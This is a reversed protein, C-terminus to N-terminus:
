RASRQVTLEIREIHAQNVTIPVRTGADDRYETTVGDRTETTVGGGIRGGTIGGGWTFSGGNSGGQAGRIASRSTVVPAIAVLTYAGDTVSNIVFRGSADTRSPMQGRMFPSGTSDDRMLRILANAVPRGAEDIVVGSVRFAPLTVMRIVVEGSTQGAGVAVPQAARWDLTGPFFTPMYVTSSAQASDDFGLLPMAQVFYEDGPPLGFVRFEGLDNTQVMDGVPILPMSSEAAFRGFHAPPKRLVMVQARVVPEGHDDLARGVIVAGRKLTFDLSSRVGSELSLERQDPGDLRAYGTKQVVVRYRGANVGELAYRGNRDSVTKHIQEYFRRPPQDLGLLTVEAGAIPNQSGDEVVVGSLTAGSAVAPSQSLMNLLSVVTLLLM